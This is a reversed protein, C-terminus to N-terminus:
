LQDIISGGKDLKNIWYIYKECITSQQSYINGKFWNVPSPYGPRGIKHKIQSKVLEIVGNVIDQSIFKARNVRPRQVAIHLRILKFCKKM